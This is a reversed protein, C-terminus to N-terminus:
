RHEPEVYDIQLFEFIDKESHFDHNARQKTTNHYLGYENLSYGQQIAKNRMSINFAQSGTFYLLAFPYEEPTTFMVDIRRHSFSRLKCVGMYKKSGFGFDDVLYRIDKLGQIIAKFDCEKFNEFCTVLVDIDGSDNKKRRYSGTIHFTIREELSDFHKKLFTEHLKMEKRPIRKKFDEHYKLGMVQKCNLLHPNQKLDYISYINSEILEKAKKPGIGMISTLEEFAKIKDKELPNLNDTVSTGGTEIIQKIKASISKGMGKIDKLDDFTNIEGQFSEIQKIVKNYANAKFVQNNRKENDRLLKLIDIITTKIM